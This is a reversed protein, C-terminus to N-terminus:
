NRRGWDGGGVPEIGVYAIKCELHESSMEKFSMNLESRADISPTASM